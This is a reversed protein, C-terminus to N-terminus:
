NAGPIPVTLYRFTSKDPDVWDNTSTVYEEWLEINDDSLDLVLFNSTETANKLVTEKGSVVDYISVSMWENPYDKPRGRSTGPEYKSFVFRRSDIWLLASAAKLTKFHSVMDAYTYLELTINYTEGKKVSEIVFMTGDDNFHIGNVNVSELALFSYNNTDASYFYLGREAGKAAKSVLPDAYLWYIWGSATAQNGNPTPAELLKGNVQRHWEDDSVVFDVKEPAAFASETMLLIIFVFFGYWLKKM